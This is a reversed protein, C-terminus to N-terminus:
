RSARELARLAPKFSNGRVEALHATAVCYKSISRESVRACRLAQVSPAHNVRRRQKVEAIAVAPWRESKRGDGYELNCDITIREDWEYGVLTIRRFTIWICPALERAPVPCHREIFTYADEGLTSCGFSVPLVSKISRGMANRHKVELFSVERDLHHRIRVKYRQDRGRRHAHYLRLDPTDFYLTRYRGALVNGARLVGYANSLRALIREIRDAALTYKRDVRQMLARSALLAHSVDSFRGLVAEVRAVVVPDELSPLVATM